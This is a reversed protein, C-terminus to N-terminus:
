QIEVRFDWIEVHLAIAIDFEAPWLHWKKQLVVLKMMIYYGREGDSFEELPIITETGKETKTSNSANMIEEKDEPLRVM